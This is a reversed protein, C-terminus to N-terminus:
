SVARDRRLLLSMGRGADRDIRLVKYTTASSSIEDGEEPAPDIDAGQLWLMAYTSEDGPSSNELQVGADLIARISVSDASPASVAPTFIFEEGFTALCITNVADILAAFGSPALAPAADNTLYNAVLWDGTVPPDFMTIAAGVRSLHIDEYQRFEKVYLRLTGAIPIYALTFATNGGGITGSPTENIIATATV